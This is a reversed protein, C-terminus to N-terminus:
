AAAGAPRSGACLNTSSLVLMPPASAGVSETTQGCHLWAFGGLLLNQADHPNLSPFAGVAAGFTATDSTGGGGGGGPAIPPVGPCTWPSYEAGTGPPTLRVARRASPVSAPKKWMGAFEIVIPRSVPPM